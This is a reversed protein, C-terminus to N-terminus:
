LKFALRVWWLEELLISFEHFTIFISIKSILLHWELALKLLFSTLNFVM